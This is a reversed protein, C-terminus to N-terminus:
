FGRSEQESAAVESIMELVYVIEFFNAKLWVDASPDARHRIERRINKLDLLLARATGQSDVPSDLEGLQVCNRLLGAKLAEDVHSAFPRQNSERGLGFSLLLEAATHLEEIMTPGPVDGFYWDVCFRETIALRADLRPVTPYTILHPVWQFGISSRPRLHEDVDEHGYGGSSFVHVFGNALRRRTRLDRHDLEVAEALIPLDRQLKQAVLAFRSSHGDMTINYGPPDGNLRTARWRRVGARRARRRGAAIFARVLPEDDPNYTLHLGVGAVEAEVERQYTNRSLALSSALSAAM